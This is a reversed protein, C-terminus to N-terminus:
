DSLLKKDWGKQRIFEICKATEEESFKVAKNSFKKDKLDIKWEAMSQRVAEIKTTRIDEIVKCVTALLETKHSRIKADYISFIEALEDVATEIQEKYENHYKFLKEANLVQIVNNEFKFYEKNHINKKIATPYPGLHWRQYNEYLPIGYIKDALFAYKALTMEGHRIKKQQSRNVILGLTQLQYFSTRKPKEIEKAKVLKGEFAKKLISQRLAESQKLSAAITEELKDCVSLRSEIEEVIRQQEELPCIPISLEEVDEVRLHKVGTGIASKEMRDQFVSDMIVYHLYKPTLLEPFTRLLMIRQGMCIKTNSPIIAADGMPAERTFLIDKAKPPCRRSWYDYTEKSVFRINQVLDLKGNKINSTRVLFIGSEQYPATKNHCDVVLECSELFSSWVWGNPLSKEPLRVSHKKHKNLLRSAEKDGQAIAKELSTRRKFEIENLIDQGTSKIDKKRWEETLKGEFAYKLVAQRYTKLQAQATKLSAIGADLESFLEEIKAVIREQEALPPLPLPQSFVDKDRVAPYSSGTQLENLPQLFINSLSYYFVFRHNLAKSGRIVTFGSSAIQGNYKDNDVSAVNKLYTRVTSFLIDHKKVIQQARSPADKWAYNKHSIIKNLSNDIGGIDLYIFEEDPNMEKRRVVQIKECVEGLKKVEWHKPLENKHIM